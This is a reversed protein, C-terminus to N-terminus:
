RTESMPHLGTCGLVTVAIGLDRCV